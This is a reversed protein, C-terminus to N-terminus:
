YDRQSQTLKFLSSCDNQMLWLMHEFLIADVDVDVFIVRKEGRRADVRGKNGTRVMDMLVRFPNEELVFPDVLFVRKEKGVVVTVPGDSDGYVGDDLRRYGLRSASGCGRRLISVPLILCAM